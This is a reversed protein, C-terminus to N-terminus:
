IFLKAVNGLNKKRSVGGIFISCVSNRFTPAYFDSMPSEGFIFLVVIFIKHSILLQSLLLFTKCM